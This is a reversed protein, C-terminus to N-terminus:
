STGPVGYLRHVEHLFSKIRPLKTYFDQLTATELNISDAERRLTAQLEEDRALLYFCTTLTKSTTDTGAMFLGIVNGVLREQSITSKNSQMISYVKQLFTRKTDDGGQEVYQAVIKDVIATTRRISWGLGDLFQGVLPINWYCFPAMGRAAFGGMVKNIDHGTQSESNLFDFDKDLTVKAISDASMNSLDRGINVRCDQEMLATWKDVLRRAM